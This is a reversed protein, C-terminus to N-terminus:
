PVEGLLRRLYPRWGDRGTESPAVIEPKARLQKGTKPITERTIGKVCRFDM